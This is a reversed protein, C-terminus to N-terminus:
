SRDKRVRVANAHATLGESEALREIYPAAEKLGERSYFIYQTKKLFSDVSLPSFFRATGGTPLVHNPGAFYDGLPEPSYQGLFVSGANEVGDLLDLPRETMLELHEPAIYNCLELMKQEHPCLIIGGYNQLSERIIDTRSLGAIQREIEKATREAVGADTTLLIASAQRDHEAQSMLDAAIFAPDATRDALILIESPGAVMDIDCVGFILRKATAVYLNGPGVIKDVRRVSETGYALAGVAQAGGMLLIEDVGCLCAAALIEDKAGGPPTVMILESVGALKAPIANMLVSSPYAATGGPVYIGVRDLGRVKQGLLCVGDKLEYGEKLQARHFAAVNERARKLAELFDPDVRECAAQMAERDLRVLQDTGDFKLMYERLAEDGRAAIDSLIGRVVAEVESGAQRAREKLRDLFEYEKKGDAAVVNMQM